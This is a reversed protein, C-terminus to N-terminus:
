QGVQERKRTRTRWYDMAEAGFGAVVFLVALWFLATNQWEMSGFLAMVGLSPLIVGVATWWKGKRAQAIASTSALVFLLTAM